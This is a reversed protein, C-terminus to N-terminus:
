EFNLLFNLKKDFRSIFTYKSKLKLNSIKIPYNFLVLNNIKIAFGYEYNKFYNYFETESLTSNEKFSDWLFEISNKIVKGVDFYGIVHQFDNSYIFIKDIERKFGKKRFLYKKNKSIAKIENKSFKMLINSEIPNGLSNVYDDLKVKNEIGLVVGMYGPFLYDESYGEVYLENLIEHKLKGPIIFKYFLKETEPVRFHGLGYIGVFEDGNDNIRINNIMDDVLIEDFPREDIEYNENVMFTFLGKQARLNPNTYYEPRYFHLKYPFSLNPFINKEMFDHNFAWLICDDENDDLINRTAFYLSVKYDYSWDLAETPVGYHQALSIIEFFDKHPWEEHGDLKYKINEHILERIKNNASIKLGTRDAWNLFKLLVYLERKFQFERDSYVACLEEGSNSIRNGYKDLSYSISEASKYLDYEEMTIIGDKLYEIPPKFWMLCFRSDIYDNIIYEGNKDKRLASPKLKHKVSGLGRFIYKERFNPSNGQLMDILHEYSKINITEVFDEYEVM